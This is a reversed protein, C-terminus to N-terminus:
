NGHHQEVPQPGPLELLGRSKDLDPSGAVARTLTVRLCRQSLLQGPDGGGRNALTVPLQPRRGAVEVVQDRDVGEVLAVDVLSEQIGSLTTPQQGLLGALGAPGQGRTALDAKGMGAAGGIWGALIADM